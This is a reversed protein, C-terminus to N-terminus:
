TEMTESVLLKIKGFTLILRIRSTFSSQEEIMKKVHMLRLLSFSMSMTGFSSTVM